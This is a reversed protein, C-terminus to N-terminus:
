LRCKSKVHMCIVGIAALSRIVDLNNYRQPKIVQAEM